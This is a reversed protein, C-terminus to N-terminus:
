QGPVGAANVPTGRPKGARGPWTYDFSARQETNTEVDARNLLAPRYTGSSYIEWQDSNHPAGRMTQSGYATQVMARGWTEGGPLFENVSKFTCGAFGTTTEEGAGPRRSSHSNRVSDDQSGSLGWEVGNVDVPLKKFEGWPKDLRQGDEDEMQMAVVILAQVAAGTESVPIGFPTEIPDALDFPAEWVNGGLYAARFRDFLLAGVSDAACLGDWNQLM